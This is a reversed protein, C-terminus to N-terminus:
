ARKEKQVKMLYQAIIAPNVYKSKCVSPTHGLKDAATEIAAQVNAKAAKASAPTPSKSLEEHVISSAHYTRFDKATIGGAAKTHAKLYSNVEDNDVPFIKEKRDKGAAFERINKVTKPDTIVRDWKVGSKGPFRVRIGKDGLDTLHKGKLTTAGVSGTEKETKGGGIRMYTTDIIKAVTAAARTKEDSHSMDSNIRDRLPGVVTSMRKSKLFKREASKQQHEDSYKYVKILKPDTESKRRVIIDKLGTEKPDFRHASHILEVNVGKYMQKGSPSKPVLKKLDDQSISEVPGKPTGFGAGFAFKGDADRPHDEESFAKEETRLGDVVFNKAFWDNLNTRM